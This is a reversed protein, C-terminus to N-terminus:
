IGREENSHYIAELERYVKPFTGRCNELVSHYLRDHTRAIEFLVPTIDDFGAKLRRVTEELKMCHMGYPCKGHIDWNIHIRERAMTSKPHLTKYRSALECLKAFTIEVNPDAHKHCIVCPSQITNM